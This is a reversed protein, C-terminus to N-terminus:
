WSPLCINEHCSVVMGGYRVYKNYLEISTWTCLKQNTYMENALLKMAEDDYLVVRNINDPTKRFEDYCRLHYQAEAAALDYVGHCRMGVERSWEDNRDGCYQLVATKFPPADTIGRRECQVVKDWAGVLINLIWLSVHKLM